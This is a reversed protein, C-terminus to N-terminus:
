ASIVEVVVPIIEHRYQKGELIFYGMESNEEDFKLDSWYGAIETNDILKQRVENALDDIYDETTDDDERRWILQILLRHYQRTYDPFTTRSGDSYVMAVPSRGGFDKTQHDYVAVFTTITAMLTAMRQRATKRTVLTPM